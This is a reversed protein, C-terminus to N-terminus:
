QKRWKIEEGRFFVRNDDLVEVLEPPLLKFDKTYTLVLFGMTSQSPGDEAYLFKSGADIPMPGLMGTECAWRRGKYDSFPSCRLNHSHGTIIHCGSAVANSHTAHVGNRLRHKIVTEGETGKNIVLSWCFEWAEFHTRLDLGSVGKFEPLSALKTAWRQDHNGITFVLNCGQPAVREIGKMLKKAAKLEEAVTPIPEGHSPFRSISAGDFLDGNCVIIKPKLEKILELLAFYAPTYIQDPWCHADSFVLVHGTVRHVANRYNIKEIDKNFNRAALEISNRWELRRRRSYVAREAIGLIDAIKKPSGLEEWMELFEADSVTKAPM